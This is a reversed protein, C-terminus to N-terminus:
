DNKEEKGLPLLMELADGHNDEYYGKKIKSEEFGLQRYLRQARNNDVRVELSMTLMGNAIAVDELTQIMATGIGHQQYGPTVAINTIHVENKVWNFSCGAFGIIFNDDTAVMYLRHQRSLESTFALSGWPAYGQYVRREIEVMAETDGLRAPQLVISRNGVLLTQPTFKVPHGVLETAAKALWHNFKRFM